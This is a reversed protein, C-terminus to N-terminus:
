SLHKTEDQVFVREVEIPFHVFVATEKALIKMACISVFNICFFSVLGVIHFLHISSMNERQSLRVFCLHVM